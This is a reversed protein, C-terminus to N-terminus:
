DVRHKELLQIREELKHILDLLETTGGPVVPPHSWEELKKVKEELCAIKFDNM